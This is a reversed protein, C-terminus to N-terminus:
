SANGSILTNKTEEHIGNQNTITKGSHEFKPVNEFSTNGVMIYLLEM